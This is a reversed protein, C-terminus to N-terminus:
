NYALGLHDLINVHTVYLTSVVDPYIGAVILEELEDPHDPGADLVEFTIHPFEDQVYDGIDEWFEDEGWQHAWKITIEEKPEEVVDDNNDNNNNNNNNNVNGANPENNDNGNGNANGDGCAVIFDSLAVFLILVTIRTMKNRMYIGGT